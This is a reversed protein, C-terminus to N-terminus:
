IMRMDSLVAIKMDLVVRDVVFATLAMLSFLIAFALRCWVFGESIFVHFDFV